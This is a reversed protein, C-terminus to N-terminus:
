NILVKTAGASTYRIYVGPTLLTEDTGCNIGQLNFYIAEGDADATVNEVGTTIKVQRSMVESHGTRVADAVARTVAAPTADGQLAEWRQPATFAAGSMTVPNAFHATRSDDVNQPVVVAIAKLYIGDVESQLSRPTALFSCEEGAEAAYYYFLKGAAYQQFTLWDQNHTFYGPTYPVAPTASSLNDRSDLADVYLVTSMLAPDAVPQVGAALYTQPDTGDKTYFVVLHDAIAPDIDFSFLTMKDFEEDATEAADITGDDTLLAEIMAIEPVTYGQAKRSIASIHFTGQRYFGEVDYVPANEGDTDVMADINRHAVGATLETARDYVHSLTYGDAHSGRNVVVDELRIFTMGDAAPISHIAAPASTDSHSGNVPAFGRLTGAMTAFPYMRSDDATSVTVIPDTIVSTRTLGATIASVPLHAAAITVGDTFFVDFIGDTLSERAHLVNMNGKIVYITQPETADAIGNVEVIERPQETCLRLSGGTGPTFGEGINTDGAKLTANGDASVTISFLTPTGSWALTNGSLAIYGKAGSIAFMGGPQEAITLEAPDAKSTVKGDLLTAATLSNSLVTNGSILYYKDETNIQASHTLNNVETIVPVAFHQSAPAPTTTTHADQPVIFMNLGCFTDPCQGYYAYLNGAYDFDMQSVQDYSTSSDHGCQSDPIPDGHLSLVPTDGNWTVDYLQIGLSGMSVALLNEEANIAVSGACAPIIDSHDGSNYLINEGSFDVFLFGPCGSNQNGAGRHQVVFVGHSTAHLSVNDNALRGDSRLLTNLGGGDAATKEPATTVHTGTGIKHVVLLHPKSNGSPYDEQYTWLRTEAGEGTFCLGSGGGGLKMGNYTWCGGSDKTAGAPSFINGTGYEPHLPNFVYIGAGKDAYDIGYVCGDSKRYAVRYLSSRNTAMWDSHDTLYTGRKNLNPEYVTFGAAYGDSRVVLGFAASETDKIAVVGGRSTATPAKEFFYREGVYESKNDVRVEWTYAGSELLFHPVTLTHTGAAMSGQPYSYEKGTESRLVLTVNEAKYSLSFTYDCMTERETVKLDYAFSAPQSEHVGTGTFSYEAASEMGKTFLSLTATAKGKGTPKYTVTVSGSGEDATITSNDISFDSSGSLTLYIDGQLNEGEISFSRAASHGLEVDGFNVDGLNTMIEPAEVGPPTVISPTMFKSVAGNRVAFLAMRSEVYKGTEDLVVVGVGTTAVNTNSYNSMAAGAVSVAKASGLGNTIDALLIGNNVSSNIFSPSTIYIKGGFRFIGTHVANSPIVGASLKASVTSVTNNGTRPLLWAESNNGNIIYENDAYPSTFMTLGGDTAGYAEGFAGVTIGDPKNYVADGLLQSNKMELGVIRFTSGSKSRGPYYWWGTERNGAWAMTGGVTGNIWNGELKTVNAPLPDGQAIKNGDRAWVYQMVMGTGSFPQDIVWNMGVLWGDSTIAIDAVGCDGITNATTGLTRLVEGKAHDFVVITAQKTSLDHGLIYLIDGRAIVRKIVKGSLQPIARDLYEPEVVYASAATHGYAAPDDQYIVDAGAKQEGEGGLTFSQTPYDTTSFSITATHTGESSPSYTVTVSGKGNAKVITSNDISFQDANAGTISIKVDDRLNSANVTYTKTASAGVNVKGFYGNEAPTVSMTVPQVMEAASSVVFFGSHVNRVGGADTSQNVQSGDVLLQSSGGCDVQAAYTAGFHKLIYTLQDTSLGYYSGSKHGCVAIYLKTGDNNTGYITRAYVSNNYGSQDVPGGKSGIVKGAVMTMCNGSTAEKVMPWASGDTIFQNTLILEDGVLYNGALVAAYPAGTIDQGVICLDYNGLTGTGANKRVEKVIYKTTGSGGVKMASEGPALSLYVETCKGEVISWTNSSELKVPKFAKTRGWAPTYVVASGETVTRNFDRIDLVHNIRTNLFELKPQYYNIKMRGDATFAIMGTQVPGGIHSGYGGTANQVYTAGDHIATGHPQLSMQSKWPQESTIWFNANAGAILKHGDSSNAKAINALSKTSGGTTGSATQYEVSVTPETLDAIVLYVHTGCTTYGTATGNRGAAKLYKYTVGPALQREVETTFNYSASGLSITEAHLSPLLLGAAMAAAFLLKKM